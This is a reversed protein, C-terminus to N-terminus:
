FPPRSQRRLSCNSLPALHKPNRSTPYCSPQTAPPHNHLPTITYCLQQTTPHSTLPLTTNRSLQTAPHNALPISSYHPYIPLASPCHSPKSFHSPQTASYCSPKTTDLHNISSHNPLLHNNLPVIPYCCLIYFVLFGLCRVLRGLVPGHDSNLAAIRKFIEDAIIGGEKEKSV